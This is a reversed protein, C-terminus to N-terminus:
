ADVAGPLAEVSDFGLGADVDEAAAEVSLFDFRDLPKKPLNFDFNLSLSLFYNKRFCPLVRSAKDIRQKHQRDHQCKMNANIASTLPLDSCMIIYQHTSRKYQEM